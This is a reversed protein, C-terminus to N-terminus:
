YDVDLEYVFSDLAATLVLQHQMSKPEYCRAIGPEVYQQKIWESLWRL